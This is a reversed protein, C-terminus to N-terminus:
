TALARAIPGLVSLFDCNRSEVREDVCKRLVIINTHHLYVNFAEFVEHELSSLLEQLLMLHWEHRHLPRRVVLFFQLVSLLLNEIHDM